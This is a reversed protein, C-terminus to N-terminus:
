QYFKFEYYLSFKACYIHNPCFWISIYNGKQITEQGRTKDSESVAGKALVKTGTEHMMIQSTNIQGEIILTNNMFM